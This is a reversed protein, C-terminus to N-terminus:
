DWQLIPATYNAKFLGNPPEGHLVWTQLCLSILFLSKWVNFSFYSSPIFIRKIKRSISCTVYLISCILTCHATVPPISVYHKSSALVLRWCRTSGAWFEQAKRCRMWFSCFSKLLTRDENKYSMLKQQKPMFMCAQTHLICTNELYWCCNQGSSCHTGVSFM